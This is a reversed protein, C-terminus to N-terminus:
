LTFRIMNNGKEFDALEKAQFGIGICPNKMQSKKKAIKDKRVM